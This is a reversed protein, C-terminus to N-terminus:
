MQEPATMIMLDLCRALVVKAAEALKLRAKTIEEEGEVSSVVRCNQYFWHFATALEQAYHPLHHAELSRAMMEVLEPMVLMKRILDLEASHQLLSVDADGYDIGREQALRLISAIRAHAYQVYYVPNESSEEKALEMDFDMQSEAARSLFFFRCADAGVEEVLERLTIIEGSRKSLRVIEGGRRLTVIQTITFTLKEPPVGLAAIAAKMRPVHGQHDAGWIDIVQEFGREVFKNYHYAIDSAFYTPVGTSRILVNDKDEGLATSAFWTAGDREVVHGNERLLAMTKEYQGKHYLSRESFWEDFSIRLLGLDTQMADLMKALGTDALERSAEQEPMNLFREGFEEKIVQAVEIMYEGVYGDEPVKADQGFLQRYRAYLSRGFQDIQNGTDNTYHERHVNYGAAQLINALASGIVAGRVHGVHLPGTPNGSVFEVQVKRGYGTDVNGFSMGSELITNVQGALWSDKLSFNLFGPPATWVKEIAEHKPMLEVIKEAIQLPSMRMPRALKLPLSCAFDGHEPNQPREVPVEDISADPLMNKAQADKIANTVLQGLDDKITM